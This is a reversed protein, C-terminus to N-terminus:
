GVRTWPKCGATHFVTDTVQVTVTQAERGTHKAVLAGDVGNRQWFCDMGPEEAGDTRYTGAPLERGVFYHGPGLALPAGPGPASTEPAPARAVTSPAVTTVDPVATVAPHDESCGVLVGVLASVAVLAHRARMM